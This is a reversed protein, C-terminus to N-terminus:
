PKAEGSTSEDSPTPSSGLEIPLIPARGQVMAEFPAFWKLAYAISWPASPSPSYLMTLNLEVRRGGSTTRSITARQLRYGGPRISELMASADSALKWTNARLSVKLENGRGVIRM